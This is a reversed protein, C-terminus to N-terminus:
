PNRQNRSLNVSEPPSRPSKLYGTSISPRWSNWVYQVTESKWFVRLGQGDADPIIQDVIPLLLARKEAESFDEDSAQFVKGIASAMAALKGTETLMDGANTKREIPTLAQLQAEIGKRRDSLTKMEGAFDAASLGNRMGELMAAKMHDLDTQVQRLSDSLRAREQDNAGCTAQGRKFDDFARLAERISEPTESLHYLHKLFVREMLEASFSLRPRQCADDDRRCRYSRASGRGGTNGCARSGCVPCFIMGSLMFRREPNGGYQQQKEEITQALKAACNEWTAADILAPIAAVEIWEEESRDLHRKGNRVVRTPDNLFTMGEDGVTQTRGYVVRGVYVPNELIVRISTSRWKQGGKSTPVGNDNLHRGIQGLSCGAAYLRFIQRVWHAQDEIVVYDGSRRDSYLGEIKERNTVIHFGYPPITRAPQVGSKALERRGNSTRECIMEREFEAFGSLQTFMLNGTANNEFNMGDAFILSCGLRLVEKRITRLIGADRGARDMKYIILTDAEGSRLSALAAQIGPRTYFKAGSVGPDSFVDVVASQLDTAKRKCAAEQMELSTNEVQMGTSVRTYVISKKM